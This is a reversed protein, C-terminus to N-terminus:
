AADPLSVRRVDSNCKGRAACARIHAAAAARRTTRQRNSRAGRGGLHVGTATQQGRSPVLTLLCAMTEASMAEVSPLSARARWDRTPSGARPQMAEAGGPPHPLGASRGLGTTTRDSLATLTLPRKQEGLGHCSRAARLPRVRAPALARSAGDREFRRAGRARQAVTRAKARPPHSWASRRRRASGCEIATTTRRTGAVAGQESAAVVLSM